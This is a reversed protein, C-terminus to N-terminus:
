VRKQPIEDMAQVTPQQSAQLDALRQVQGSPRHGADLLAQRQVQAHSAGAPRHALLDMVEEDSVPDFHSYFQGVAEFAAPVQLCVLEDCLPRVLDLASHAAVPVACVLRAPRRQRVGHLAARMTAGTALGDDVVIVTRAQVGISNGGPSYLARRTRMLAMQREKEAEIWAKDAGWRDAYPSVWTWGTEDVAAVALEAFGPASIKRVLLVDWQGHLARALTPAMPVAGRAIALVLPQLHRLHQLPAILQRAADQRDIFM